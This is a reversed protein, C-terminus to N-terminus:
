EEGGGDTAADDRSFPSLTISIVEKGGTEVVKVSDLKQNARVTRLTGSSRLPIVVGPVLQQISLVTNPNLTTNDPIRVVVPPPYRDAISREAYGEFSAIVKERGAQTYTGAEAGSDSAWSSSVMEVLGYIVDEGEPGYIPTGPDTDPVDPLLLRYAVGYVGNGDSVAYVNAMSMGYESVIPSAGLNEDRFEPLTGIRHKTGWLLISRGVATYDLGANSAMDDVEEYATRSWAPLSRYEKADDDRNLPTLYALLNPDDPALVNQIVRTARSVVTDGATESTGFDNMAQKIVRRYLYAIVDKAHITVTDQEYTLLTIPGEWVRESSYGNERFIVLEYAWTQLKSLLNGCDIDWGSVIIKADSMDDRLRGWDVYSLQTLEGVRSTGGRRYVYVRHTGCGLTAGEITESPLTLAPGSGPPPVIWFRAISSWESTVHGADAVRVRWEYATTAEVSYPAPTQTPIVDPGYVPPKVPNVTSGKVSVDDISDNVFVKTPAAFTFGVLVLGTGTPRPLDNIEWYAWGPEPEEYEFLNYTALAQTRGADAFTVNVSQETTFTGKKSWGRFSFFEHEPLLEIARSVIQVSSLSTIANLGLSNVGSHAVGADEVVSLGNASTTEWDDIDTSEEFGGDPLYEHPTPYASGDALNGEPNDLSYHADSQNGSVLTTWEVEGTKRIQVQRKAQPFPVSYNNRYQWRLTVPAGEIIAINNVPSLPVPVPVQSTVALNVPESWPSTNVEPYTDPTLTNPGETALPGFGAVYQNIVGSHDITTSHSHGYDFTRMRLQWNGPPLLACGPPPDVPDVVGCLLSIACVDRLRKAGDHVPAGVANEIFWGRGVQPDGDNTTIPLDLWLPSDDPVGVPAYQVQMGAMDSFSWSRMDRSSVTVPVLPPITTPLADPDNPTFALVARSGATVVSGSAPSTIIPARPTRNTWFSIARAKLNMPSLPVDNAVNNASGTTVATPALLAWYKTNPELASPPVEIHVGVSGPVTTGGGFTAGYRYVLIDPAGYIQEPTPVEGENFAAAPVIFLTATLEKGPHPTFDGTVFVFLALVQLADGFPLDYQLRTIIEADVTGAVAFHGADAQPVCAELTGGESSNDVRAPGSLEGDGDWSVM